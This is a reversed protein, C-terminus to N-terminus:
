GASRKVIRYVGLALMGLGAAIAGWTSLAPAGSSHVVTTPPLAVEGETTKISIQDGNNLNFFFTGNDINTFLAPSGANADWGFSHTLHGSLNCAIHYGFPHAVSTVPVTPGGFVTFELTVQRRSCAGTLAGITLPSTSHCAFDSGANWGSAAIHDSIGQGSKGAPVTGSVNQSQAAARGGALGLLLTFLLVHTTKKRRTM